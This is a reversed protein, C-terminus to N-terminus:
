ESQGASADAALGADLQSWSAALRSLSTQLARVAAAHTRARSEVWARFASLSEDVRVAGSSAGVVLTGLDLQDLAVALQGEVASATRDDVRLDGVVDGGARDEAQKEPSPLWASHHGREAM